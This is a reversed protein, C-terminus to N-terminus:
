ETIDDIKNSIHCLIEPLIGLAGYHKKILKNTKLPKFPTRHKKLLKEVYFSVRERYHFFFAYPLLTTLFFCEKTKALAHWANPTCPLGGPSRIGKYRHDWVNRTM